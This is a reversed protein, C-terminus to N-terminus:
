SLKEDAENFKITIERLDKKCVYFEEEKAQLNNELEELENQQQGADAEM